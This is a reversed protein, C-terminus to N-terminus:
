MEKSIAPASSDRTSPATAFIPGRIAFVWGSKNAGSRAAPHLSVPDPHAALGKTNSSARVFPVVEYDHDILDRVVTTGIHGNARTVLVRTM